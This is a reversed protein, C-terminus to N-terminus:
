TSSQRRAEQIDRILYYPADPGAWGLARAARQISHRSWHMGGVNSHGQSNFARAALGLVCESCISSDYYRGPRRYNGGGFRSAYHLEEEPVSLECERCKRKAM